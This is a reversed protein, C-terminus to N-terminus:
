TDVPVTEYFEQVDIAGSPNIVFVIRAYCFLDLANNYFLMDISLHRAGPGIFATDIMDLIREVAFGAETGLDVTYEDWGNIASRTAEYRTPDHWPGFPTSDMKSRTLSSYCHTSQNLLTPSGVCSGDYVARQTIRVSGVLQNYMRIVIRGDDLTEPETLTVPILAGRTWTWVDDVSSIGDLSISSSDARRTSLGGFFDSISTEMQYVNAVSRQTFIMSVILVVFLSHSFLSKIFAREACRRRLVLQIYMLPAPTLLNLKGFRYRDFVARWLVPPGSSHHSANSTSTGGSTYSATTYSHAKVCMTDVVYETKAGLTEPALAPKLTDPAVRPTNNNSPTRARYIDVDPEESRENISERADVPANLGENAARRAGAVKHMMMAVAGAMSPLRIFAGGKGGLTAEQPTM